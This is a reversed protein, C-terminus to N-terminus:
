ERLTDKLKVATWGGEDAVYAGAQLTCAEQTVPNEPPPLVKASTTAHVGSKSGRNPMKVDASGLRPSRCKIDRCSVASRYGCESASAWTCNRRVQQQEVHASWPATSFLLASGKAAGLTYQVAHKGRGARQVLGVAGGGARGELERMAEARPKGAGDDYVGM